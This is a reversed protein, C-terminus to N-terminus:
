ALYDKRLLLMQLGEYIETRAELFMCVRVRSFLMESGLFDQKPGRPTRSGGTPFWQDLCVLVYAFTYSISDM